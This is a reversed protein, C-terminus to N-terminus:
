ERRARDVRARRKPASSTSACAADLLPRRYKMYGAHVLWVDTAALSNTLVRLDARARRREAFFAVGEKGPVFYPSVILLSSRVARVHAAIQGELFTDSRTGAAKKLKDPPDAIVRADAWHM